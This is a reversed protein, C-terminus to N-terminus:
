AGASSTEFSSSSVALDVGEAPEEFEETAANWWGIECRDGVATPELYSAAVWNRVPAQGPSRPRCKVQYMLSGDMLTPQLIEVETAVSGKERYSVVSGPLFCQL